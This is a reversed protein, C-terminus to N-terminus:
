VFWFPSFFCYITTSKTMRTCLPLSLSLAMWVGTIVVFGTLIRSGLIVHFYISTTILTEVTLNSLTEEGCLALPVHHLGIPLWCGKLQLQHLAAKIRRVCNLLCRWCFPPLEFFAPNNFCLNFSNNSFLPKSLHTFEWNLYQAKFM